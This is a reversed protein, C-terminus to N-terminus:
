RERKKTEKKAEDEEEGEEENSKREKNMREREKGIVIIINYYDFIRARKSICTHTIGYTIDKEWRIEIVM